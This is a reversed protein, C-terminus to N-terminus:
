TFGYKMKRESIVGEGSHNKQSEYAPLYFPLVFGLSVYMVNLSGRNIRLITKTNPTQSTHTKMGSLFLPHIRKLFRSNLM